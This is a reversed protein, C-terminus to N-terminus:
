KLWQAFYAVVNSRALKNEPVYRVGKDHDYRVGGVTITYHNGIPHPHLHVALIKVRERNFLVQDNVSYRPTMCAGHLNFDSM